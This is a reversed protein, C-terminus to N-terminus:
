HVSEILSTNIQIHHRFSVPTGWTGLMPKMLPNLVNQLNYQLFSKVRNAKNSIEKIHQSWSFKSDIVVGLYKTHTVERIVQHRLFHQTNLLIQKIPLEKYNRLDIPHLETNHLKMQFIGIVHKSM